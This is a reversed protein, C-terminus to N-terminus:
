SSRMCNSHQHELDLRLDSDVHNWFLGRLSARPTRSFEDVHSDRSLRVSCKSPCTVMLYTIVDYYANQPASLPSILIYMM